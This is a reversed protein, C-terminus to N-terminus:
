HNPPTTQPAAPVVSTAAKEAAGLKKERQEAREKRLQEAESDSVYRFQQVRGPFIESTFIRNMKDVAIGVLGQFQGPLLGHGGFSILLQDERNFVQVRDQMGDAVWIHGDGDVALGKPRAFYGPGDGAKGFTRIFKGDADFVEIRNNLTDAVYLNGEQDVALGTPKAFDGPSTLEHDHGTTGLKRIPKFTDADYVLVQDLEVDSVYLLRNERDIALGGPSVLGETIVDEAKHAANFVLVHRLGPDSVFLRDNDDMALGIIRVFHAHTKNKILEVERTETNFIFIAGVKQDAVYLNNKSDVAVGYPEALQFLVKTNESAPQTGALRDMWKQKKTNNQAEIQSIKQAAYFAQYKIRAIAPPNPWVINSYDIVPIKKPEAAKKKKGAFASLPALLTLSLMLCLVLRGKPKRISSGSVESM